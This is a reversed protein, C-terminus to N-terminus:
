VHQNFILAFCLVCFVLLSFIKHVCVEATDRCILGNAIGFNYTSPVTVDYLKPYDKPSVIEISVIEDLVVDNKQAFHQHINNCRIERLKGSKKSHTLTGVIDAFKRVWKSTIVLRYSPNGNETGLDNHITPQVMTVKGFIGLTACLMSIGDILEKSVSSVSVSNERISGGGSFYGDLLGIRFELPAHLAEYPIRKKNGGRGVLRCMLEAFVVSFGKASESTGNGAPTWKIGINDFWNKVFHQVTPDSKTIGIYGSKCDCEGDALFLGIFVGNDRNLEFRSPIVRTKPLYCSVEIHGSRPSTTVNWMTPVCDGTSVSLIHRPEFLGNEPNCVILSKSEAVTVCRGGRTTVKFLNQSPDHRTVATLPAWSTRGESDCTPITVVSDSTLELCELNMEEPTRVVKSQASESDMLGDIWDGILVRKMTGNECIVIPTDGTVSKVATDVLGERGAQAHGYFEHPTLGHLLSHRVLGFREPTTDDKAFCPLRGKKLRGGEVSQQGVMATMQGTNVSSGKSGSTTADKCGNGDPLAAAALGATRPLLNKLIKQQANEIIEDSLGEQIVKENQIREDKRVATEIVQKIKDHVEKPLLLDGPGISFNDYAKFMYDFVRQCDSLFDAVYNVGVGKMHCMFHIYGGGSTGAFKKCPRGCLLRGRRIIVHDDIVDMDDGWRNSDPRWRDYMMDKPLLCSLIQKGTWLNKPKVIAPEPLRIDRFHRCQSLLQCAERKSFFRDRKCMKWGAVIANQVLAMTMKSSQASLLNTKVGMLVLAEAEEEPSQIVHMNMEDMPVLFNRTGVESPCKRGFDDTKLGM